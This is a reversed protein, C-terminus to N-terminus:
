IGSFHLYKRQGAFPQIKVHNSHYHLIATGDGLPTFIAGDILVKTTFVSVSLHLANKHDYSMNNEESSQSFHVSTTVTRM